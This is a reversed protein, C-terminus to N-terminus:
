KKAAKKLEDQLDDHLEDTRAQAEALGRKLVDQEDERFTSVVQDFLAAFAPTAAGVMQMTKLIDVVKM